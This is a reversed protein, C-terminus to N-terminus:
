CVVFSEERMVPLQLTSNMPLSKSRYMEKDISTVSANIQHQRDAMSNMQQGMQASHASNQQQMHNFTNTKMTQQMPYSKFTPTHTTPIPMPQIDDSSSAPTKM